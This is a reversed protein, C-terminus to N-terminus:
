SHTASYLSTLRWLPRNQALERAKQLEPDLSLSWRPHDEDLYHTAVWTSMELEQSSAWFHSPQYRCEWANECSTWLFFSSSVQCHILTTASQDYSSHWCKQCLWALSHWPNRMSVVPGTCWNATPRAQPTIVNSCKPFHKKVPTFSYTHQPVYAPCLNTPCVARRSTLQSPALLM